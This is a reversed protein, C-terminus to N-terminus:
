KELLSENECYIKYYTYGKVNKTYLKVGIPWEMTNPQYLKFGHGMKDFNYIAAYIPGVEPLNLNVKIYQFTRPIDKPM